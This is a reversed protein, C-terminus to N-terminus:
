RWKALYPLSINPISKNQWKVQAATQLKNLKEDDGNVDILGAALFSFLIEETKIEKV